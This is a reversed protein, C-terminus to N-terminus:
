GIWTRVKGVDVHVFGAGDHPYIGVGGVGIAKAINALEQTSIGDIRIDAAAGLVHQSNLASKKLRKNHEPTRYGSNILIIYPRNNVRCWAQILYLLDILRKDMSVIKQEQVDRLLYCAAHYGRADWGGKKTYYCFIAKDKSARRELHLWRDMDLLAARWDRRTAVNNPATSMGASASSATFATAAVAAGAVFAQRM